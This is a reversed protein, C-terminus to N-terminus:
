RMRAARGAGAFCGGGGGGGGSSSDGDAGGSAYGARPNNGATTYQPPPASPPQTPQVSTLTSLNNWPNVGGLGTLDTPLGGTLGTVAGGTAAGGTAAGGTAAATPPPPPPPVPMTGTRDVIKVESITPAPNTPVYQDDTGITFYRVQFRNYTWCPPPPSLCDTNLVQGDFLFKVEGNKWEVRYVHPLGDNVADSSGVRSEQRTDIGQPAALVKFPEYGTGIRWNWFSGPELYHGYSDKTEWGALPHSKDAGQAPATWDRMKAEFYGDTIPGGADYVIKGGTSRWGGGVVFEGAGDQVGLVTSGFLPDYILVNEAQGWAPVIPLAWAAAVALLARASPRTM